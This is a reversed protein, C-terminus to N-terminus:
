RVNRAGSTSDDEEDDIPSFEIENEFETVNNVNSQGSLNVASRESLSFTYALFM